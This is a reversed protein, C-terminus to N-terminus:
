FHSSDSHKHAQKAQLLAQVHKSASKFSRLSELNKVTGPRKLLLRSDPAVTYVASLADDDTIM